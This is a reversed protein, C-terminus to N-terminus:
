KKYLPENVLLTISKFEHARIPMRAITVQYVNLSINYGIFSLEGGIKTDNKMTVSVRKGMWNDKIFQMDKAAFPTDIVKVKM